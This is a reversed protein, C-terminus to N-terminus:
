RNALNFLDTNRSKHEIKKQENKQPKQKPNARFIISSKAIQNWRFVENKENELIPPFFQVYNLCAPLFLNQEQFKHLNQM